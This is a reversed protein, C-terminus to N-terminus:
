LYHGSTEFNLPGTSGQVVEQVVLSKLRFRTELMLATLEYEFEIIIFIFIIYLRRYWLIRYMKLTFLHNTVRNKSNVLEQGQRLNRM